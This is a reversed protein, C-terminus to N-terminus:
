ACARLVGEWDKDSLLGAGCVLLTQAARVAASGAHQHTPMIVQAVRQIHPHPHLCQEYEAQSTYCVSAQQKPPRTLAFSAPMYTRGESEWQREMRLKSCKGSSVHGAFCAASCLSVTQCGQCQHLTTTTTTTTAGDIGCTACVCTVMGM